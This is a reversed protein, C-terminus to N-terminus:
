EKEDQIWWGYIGTNFEGILEGGLKLLIGHGAGEKKELEDARIKIPPPYEAGPSPHLQIYVYKPM